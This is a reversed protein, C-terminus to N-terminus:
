MEEWNRGRASSRDGQLDTFSMEATNWGPVHLSSLDAPQATTEFWSDDLTIIRDMEAFRQDMLSQSIALLDEPLEQVESNTATPLMSDVHEPQYVAGAVMVPPGTGISINQPRAPSVHEQPAMSHSPMSGLRQGSISSSMARPDNNDDGARPRQSRSPDREHYSTVQEINETYDLLTVNYAVDQQCIEYTNRLHLAYKGALNLFAGVDGRTVDAWRRSMNELSRVLVWFEPIVAEKYHRSHVLDEDATKM